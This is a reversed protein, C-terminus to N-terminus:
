CGAPAPEQTIVTERSQDILKKLADVILEACAVNSFRSTNIVLDYHHVDNPDAHFIRKVFCTQEYDVRKVYRTAERHTLELQDRTNFIREALPAVVRVRLTTGPPLVMSAGRGVIVCQGHAGLSLLVKGLHGIYRGAVTPRGTLAELCDALWHIHKEDVSEILETRLDTTEAIKELLKRDYVPWDLRTGVEQAVAEGRSGCQRSITVTWPPPIPKGPPLNPREAPRRRWHRLARDFTGGLLEPSTKIPM